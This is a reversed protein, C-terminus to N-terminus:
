PDPESAADRLLDSACPLCPRWTTAPGSRVPRASSLPTGQRCDAETSMSSGAYIGVTLTVLLKTGGVLEVALDDLRNKTAKAVARLRGTVVRRVIELVLFVGIAIGAAIVYASVSNNWYVRDLFEM